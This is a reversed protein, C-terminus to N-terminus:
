HMGAGDPLITLRELTHACANLIYKAQNGFFTELEVSRFNATNPFRRVFYVALKPVTSYGVLRLHGSLPPPQDVTFDPVSLPKRKTAMWEVCLNELHPFQLAFRLLLGDCNHSDSLTLSTLTPYFHAFCTQYHNAWRLPDFQEIALTHVRDLSQFHRLHPLLTDPNFIRPMRIYVRRAYQPLGCEGVYSLFGLHLDNHNRKLFRLRDKQIPVSQNNEPTLHLTQHLLRRTSALMARCTLSCAELTPLDDRLIDMIYDVLETPLGICEHQVTTSIPNLDGHQKRMKAVIKNGM